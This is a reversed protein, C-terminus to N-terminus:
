YDKSDDALITLFIQQRTLNILQNDWQVESM